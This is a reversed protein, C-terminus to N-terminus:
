RGSLGLTESWCSCASVREDDRDPTDRVASSFRRLTPPGAASRVACLRAEILSEVGSAIPV